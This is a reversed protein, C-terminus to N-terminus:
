SFNAIARRAECAGGDRECEGHGSEQEGRAKREAGFCVETSQLMSLLFYLQILSQGAM